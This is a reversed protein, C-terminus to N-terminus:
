LLYERTWFFIINNIVFFYVISLEKKKLDNDFDEDYLLELAYDYYVHKSGAYKKNGVRIEGVRIANKVESINM